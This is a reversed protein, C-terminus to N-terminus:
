SVISFAATCVVLQQSDREYDTLRQEITKRDQAARSTIAHLQRQLERVQEELGRKETELTLSREKLQTIERDQNQIHDRQGALTALLEARRFLSVCV